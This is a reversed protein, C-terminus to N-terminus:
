YALRVGNEVGCGFRRLRDLLASRPEWASLSQSAVVKPLRWGFIARKTCVKASSTGISIVIHEKSPLVVYAARGLEYSLLSSGYNECIIRADAETM